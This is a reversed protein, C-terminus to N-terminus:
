RLLFERRQQFFTALRNVDSQFADYTYLKRSDVKIDPDILAQLQRVRPEVKTWDMQKEAIDRVYGLYRERLAPVALLRSRLPKSDDNLGVLPDLQSSEQVGLAENMDGPFVHFKGKEDRYISYDSARTWYGDSNALAVDLALFKLAGDIDLTPALADELKDPPTQNLVRTLDMLGRWSEDSDKTKIEYANRYSIPDEGLYELGGRGRPSGPVKWRAGEGSAAFFERVMDKNYQQVNVYIGWLEGNIVVRVYNVKPAAIYHRAIESFLVTRVLAPDNMANLLNLTRYGGVAQGEHVLDFSLNLSHKSGQPVMRYSSNGRFHVGVDRYSKGDVVVTAPVDVDSGYFTALEEEWDANEFTIFLTRLANTDYLVTSEPYSRVEAPTLAPGPSGGVVNRGSRIGGGFNRGGAVGRAEAREVADLYGDENADFREVLKQEQGAGGGSQAMLTGPLLLAAGLLAHAFPRFPHKTM